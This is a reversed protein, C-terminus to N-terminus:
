GRGLGRGHTIGHPFTTAAAAAPAHVARRCIRVARPLLRLLLSATTATSCAPCSSRARGKHLLLLLLLLVRVVLVVMMEHAGGGRATM